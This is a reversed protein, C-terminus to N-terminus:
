QGLHVNRIRIGAAVADLFDPKGVAQVTMSWEPRCLALVAETATRTSYDTRPAACSTLEFLVQDGPDGFEISPGFAGVGRPDLQLPVTATLVPFGDPAIRGTLHAAWAAREADSMDDWVGLQWDGITFVLYNKGIEPVGPLLRVPGFTKLPEDTAALPFRGPGHFFAFDRACCDPLTGSGYPTAGRGAIDLSRPYVIEATTGDLFTVPMVVDDGEVRTAPVFRRSETPSVTPTPQVVPVGRHDPRAFVATVFGALVLVAAASAWTARRRRIRRARRRVDREDYGSLTAQAGRRLLHAIDEAM